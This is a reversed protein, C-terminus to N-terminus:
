TCKNKWFEDSICKLAITVTLVHASTSLCLLQCSQLCVRTSLPLSESATFGCGLREPCSWNHSLFDNLGQKTLPIWASLRSNDSNWWSYHWRRGSVAGSAPSCGHGTAVPMVCVWPFHALRITPRKTKSLSCYPIVCVWSQAELIFHQRVATLSLAAWSTAKCECEAGVEWKRWGLTCHKILEASWRAGNKKLLTVWLNCLEGTAALAIYSHVSRRVTQCHQPQVFPLADLIPELYDSPVVSALCWGLRSAVPVEWQQLVCVCM